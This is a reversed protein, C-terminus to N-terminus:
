PHSSSASSVKPMIKKKALGGYKKALKAEQEREIDMASKPGQALCREQDYVRASSSPSLSAWMRSM